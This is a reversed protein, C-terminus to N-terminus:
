DCWCYLKMSWSHVLHSIFDSQIAMTMIGLRTRNTLARNTFLIAPVNASFTLSAYMYFNAELLKM